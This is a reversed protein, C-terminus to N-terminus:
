CSLTTPLAKEVEAKFANAAEKDYTYAIMLDCHSPDAGGFRKEMDNRIAEIMISKGQSTTRAKAFADLKEGQIQLVPKLRLLTGLSSPTYTRGIGKM